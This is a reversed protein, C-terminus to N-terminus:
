CALFGGFTNRITTGTAGQVDDIDSAEGFSAITCTATDASDMDLLISMFERLAIASAVRFSRASYSGNSAVMTIVVGTAATLGIFTANGTLYYKGTVPATFTGNTNFDGNLDFIETLTDAGLTYATGTGSKNLVDTPVYALFAPQLPYTVEGTDLATMLTGTASALSFDATGTKLALSSTSNTSGLTVLKNGAGTAFNYTAATADSGVSVTGTGSNATIAGNTATISLAGSGCQVTTASTSNTSGFTSAHANATTGVTVGGTGCAIVVTSTGTANGITVTRGASAATGISIANDTADTGIAMTGGSFTVNAALIANNWSNITAM